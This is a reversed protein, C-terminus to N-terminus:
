ESISDLEEADSRDVSRLPVNSLDVAATSDLENLFRNEGAPLAPDLEKSLCVTDAVVAEESEFL